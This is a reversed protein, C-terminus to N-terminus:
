ANAVERLTNIVDEPGTAIQDNWGTIIGHHSWFRTHELVRGKAKLADALVRSAREVSDVEDDNWRNWDEDCSRGKGVAEYLAGVACYCGNVEYSGKTWGQNEIIDAAKSLVENPEM